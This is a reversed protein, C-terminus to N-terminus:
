RARLPHAAIVRDVTAEFNRRRADDEPTRQEDPKEEFLDGAALWADALAEREADTSAARPALQTHVCTVDDVTGPFVALHSVAAGAVVLVSSPFVPIVAGPRAHDLLTEMVLKWNGPRTSTQRRVEVLQALGLSALEGDLSAGLSAAMDISARARSTPVVWLFGHRSECPLDVLARDDMFQELEQPLSTRGPRALKGCLDFRWAHLKCVFSEADGHEEDVLRTSRHTCVNLMAHLAGGPDRTLLLPVGAADHTFFRGPAALEAERGVVLPLRQFVVRREAEFRSPSTYREVDRDSRMRFM